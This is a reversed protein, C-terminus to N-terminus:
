PAWDPKSPPEQARRKAESARRRVREALLKSIKARTPRGHAEFCSGCLPGQQRHKTECLSCPSETPRPPETPKLDPDGDRRSRRRRM